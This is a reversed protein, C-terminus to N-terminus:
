QGLSAIVMTIEDDTIEPFCPLSVCEAAWAASEPCAHRAFQTYAPQQHVAHPYHIGTAIGRDALRTRFLDRDTV